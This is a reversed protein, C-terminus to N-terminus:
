KHRGAESHLGSQSSGASAAFQLALAAIVCRCWAWYAGIGSNLIGLLHRRFSTMWTMRSLCARLLM